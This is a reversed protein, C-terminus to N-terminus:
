FRGEMTLPARRWASMIADLMQSAVDWPPTAWIARGVLGDVILQVLDVASFWLSCGAQRNYGDLAACIERDGVFLFSSHQLKQLAWIHNKFGAASVSM